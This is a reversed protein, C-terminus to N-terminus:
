DITTIATNVVVTFLMVGSIVWGHMYISEPSSRQSLDTVFGFVLNACVLLMCENFIEVRLIKPDDFPRFSLMYYISAVSQTLFALTQLFTPLFM